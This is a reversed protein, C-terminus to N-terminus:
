REREAVGFLCGREMFRVQKRIRQPEAKAKALADKSDGLEAQVQLLEEELKEHRELLATKAVAEKEFAKDDAM